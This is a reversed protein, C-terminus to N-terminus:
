SLESAIENVSANRHRASSSTPLALVKNSSKLSPTIWGQMPSTIQLRPTADADELYVGDKVLIEEEPPLRGLEASDLGCGSRVLVTTVTKWKCVSQEASLDIGSLDTGPCLWEVHFQNREHGWSIVGERPFSFYKTQFIRGWSPHGPDDFELLLKESLGSSTYGYKAPIGDVLVKAGRPTEHSFPVRGVTILHLVSECLNLAVESDRVERSGSYIRLFAGPISLSIAAATKVVKM